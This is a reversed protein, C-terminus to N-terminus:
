RLARMAREATKTRPYQEILESLMRRYGGHKGARLLDEAAKFKAEALKEDHALKAAAKERAITADYERQQRYFEERRRANREKIEPSLARPLVFKVDGVDPEEAIPEEDIEPLPEPDDIAVRRPARQKPVSLKASLLWCSAAVAAAIFPVM